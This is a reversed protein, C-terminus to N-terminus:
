SAAIHLPTWLDDNVANIGVGYRLTVKVTRTIDEINAGGAIALHM